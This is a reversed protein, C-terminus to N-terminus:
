ESAKSDSETALSWAIVTLSLAKSMKQRLTNQGSLKM